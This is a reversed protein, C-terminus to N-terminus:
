RAGFGVGGRVAGGTCECPANLWGPLSQVEAAASEGDAIDGSGGGGLLYAGGNELGAARLFRDTIRGGCGRM